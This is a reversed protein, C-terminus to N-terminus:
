QIAALLNVHFTNGQYNLFTHDEQIIGDYIRQKDIRYNQQVLYIMIYM